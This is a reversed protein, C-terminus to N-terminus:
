RALPMRRSATPCCDLCGDPPYEGVWVIPDVPPPVQPATYVGCTTVTGVERNGGPIDDVTWYGRCSWPGAVDRGDFRFLLRASQEPGLAREEGIVILDGDSCIPCAALCLIAAAAGSRLVLRGM